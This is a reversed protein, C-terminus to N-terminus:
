IIENFIDRIMDEDIPIDKYKRRAMCRDLIEIALDPNSYHGSSVCKSETLDYVLELLKNRSATEKGGIFKNLIALVNDKGLKKILMPAFRRNLALDHKISKEYELSTTAGIITIEKKSLYPKIIDGLSMCDDNAGSCLITHIEDIFLIIPKTKNIRNYSFIEKFCNFIKEEFDGRFRTGSMAGTLNLELVEFRESNRLAFEEILATKGSGADGVIIINKMRKKFQTENLIDLEKERGLVEIQPKSMRSLFPFSNLMGVITLM